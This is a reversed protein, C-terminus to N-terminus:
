RYSGVETVTKELTDNHMRINKQLAEYLRMGQINNVLEAVANVNSGELVGQEISFSSNEGPQRTESAPTERYLGDSVKELAQNNKFQKVVLKGVPANNVNVVGSETITIIGKNKGTVSINGGEGQVYDGRSTTLFGENNITFDGGRTLYRQDDVASKVEFFGDGHLALDLPNGTKRMAGPSFDVFSGHVQNGLSIGGGLQSSGNSDIRSMLLEPFAKFNMKSGKFGTTNANALNNAMADTSMMVTLMGSAATYLGKLM